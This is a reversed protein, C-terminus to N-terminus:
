WTLPRPRSPWAQTWAPGSSRVGSPRPISPSDGQAQAPSGTRGAHGPGAGTHGRGVEGPGAMTVEGQARRLPRKLRALAPAPKWGSGPDAPAPVGRAGCPYSSPRHALFPLGPVFAPVATCGWSAESAELSRLWEGQSLLLGGSRVERPRQRWQQGPWSAEKGLRGDQLCEARLHRAGLRGRSQPRVSPFHLGPWLEPSCPLHFDLGGPSCHGCRM